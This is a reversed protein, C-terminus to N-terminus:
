PLISLMCASLVVGMLLVHGGIVRGGAVVILLPRLETAFQIGLDADDAATEGTEVGGDIQGFGTVLHHQQLGVADAPAGGPAVATLENATDTV